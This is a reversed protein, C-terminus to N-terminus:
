YYTVLKSFRLSVECSVGFCFATKLGASNNYLKNQHLFKCMAAIYLLTCFSDCIFNRDIIITFYSGLYIYPPKGSIAPM